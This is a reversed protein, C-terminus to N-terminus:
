LDHYNMRYEVQEQKGLIYAHVTDMVDGPDLIDRRQNTSFSGSIPAHDLKSDFM